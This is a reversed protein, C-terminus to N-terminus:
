NCSGEMDCSGEEDSSDAFSYSYSDHFSIVPTGISLKGSVDNKGAPEIVVEFRDRLTTEEDREWVLLEEEQFYLSDVDRRRTKPRYFVETVIPKCFRVKKKKRRKKAAAKIETAEKQKPQITLVAPVGKDKSNVQREIMTSYKKGPESPSITSAEPPVVISKPALVPVEISKPLDPNPDNSPPSPSKAKEKTLKPLALTTKQKPLDDIEKSSPSPSKAKEKKPKPLAITPKQTPVVTIEKPPDQAKPASPQNKAKEKKPKPLALASKQTPVVTIEKPPEQAKSTSNPTKAKEKKLKPLALAPKQKETSRAKPTSPTPTSQRSHATNAPTSPSLHATNAAWTKLDALEEAIEALETKNPHKQKPSLPAEIASVSPRLFAASRPSLPAQVNHKKSKVSSSPETNKRTKIAAGSREQIYVTHIDHPSRSERPKSLTKREQESFFQFSSSFSSNITLYEEESSESESTTSMDSKVSRLRQHLLKKEKRRKNIRATKWDTTPQSVNKTSKVPSTRVTGSFLRQTMDRKWADFDPHNSSSNTVIEMPPPSDRAEDDVDTPSTSGKRSNEKNENM